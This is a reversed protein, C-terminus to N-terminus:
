GERIFRAAFFGDMGDHRHPWSRFVGTKEILPLWAEPVQDQLPQLGLEPFTELLWAVNEDTEEVTPTCTSYLLTGGPKLLRVAQTLIGRQLQVLGEIDSVFRRWRTEPNRRLVGMGSCPADVLIRDFSEKEAFSPPRTMDAVHVTLNEAGLRIGASRILEARRPIVDVATVQAQNETLACLHLTKSGPAACTDLIQEGPRAGLLHAMLISAQDQRQIEGESEGPLSGPAAGDIILGEPAYVAGRVQLGTEELQACAKEVGTKLTNVRVSLPAPVLLVEGLEAAEEAGLERIWRKSLWRPVSLWHMLYDLPKAELTPWRIEDRKRDLNRLVGNIFGSARDLKVAKALEVTTHVAARTPVRDLQLLQYAGLRLLIRVRSEVRTMPQSSIQNLAYDLRAQLRLSGYVLETLLGRDRPDMGQERQLVGDLALDSFAGEEIRQLLDFALYRPDNKKM